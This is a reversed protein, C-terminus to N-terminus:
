ETVVVVQKAARTLGTYLWRAADQRFVRSEDFIYTKDWQSGQAKHVTLAYGFDFCDREKIDWFPPEKGHFYASHITTVCRTESDNSKLCVDLSDGDVITATEVDWLAGNLLGIEHNNRLCVLRDGTIPNGPTRGLLERIRANTGHRRKNTGVLVQDYALVEDRVVDGWGIVKSLGYTGKRLGRGERVDTALRIIPNDREQRRIDTLLTDPRANTFYGSGMVPPLQFPDGLVLIPVEFSELDHGVVADVMSCEDVIILKCDKVVSEENLMFNPRKHQAKEDELERRVQKVQPHADIEQETAGQQVLNALLDDLEQKLEMLRTKDKDAPKYILPPHDDRGHV